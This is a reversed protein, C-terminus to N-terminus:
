NCSTTKDSTVPSLFLVMWKEPVLPDEQWALLKENRSAWPLDSGQVLNIFFQLSLSAWTLFFEVAVQRFPLRLNSKKKISIDVFSKFRCDVPSGSYFEQVDFKFM